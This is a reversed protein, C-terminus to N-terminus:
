TPAYYQSKSIRREHKPAFYSFNCHGCSCRSCIKISINTIISWINSFKKCPGTVVKVIPIYSNWLGHM